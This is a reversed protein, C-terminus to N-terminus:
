CGKRALREEAERAACTGASWTEHVLRDEALFFEGGLVEARHEVLRRKMADEGRIAVSANSFPPDAPVPLPFAVVWNFAGNPYASQIQDRRARPSKSFGVKIISRGEVDKSPRGLYAAIDGELKLIYLYKPGDTEGVTYSASPPPVARSPSLSRGFSQITQDVIGANGYVPVEYVDLQRLKEAEGVSVKVCSAAIHLPSSRGFTEPFIDEVPKWDEPIIRWARTAKVAFLWKGRSAPNREKEIWRDGSIYNAAHGAEHSLELVGVVKGRMNDPGKRKTVYTAVLTGPKSQSLFSARRKEDAFGICGWNAPTFGWYSTLWVEPADPLSGPTPHLEPVTAWDFEFVSQQRADIDVQGLVEPVLITTLPPCGKKSLYHLIVEINKDLGRRTPHNWVVSECLQQYTVLRGQLAKSVLFKCIDIQLSDM